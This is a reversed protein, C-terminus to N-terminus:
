AGAFSAVRHLEFGAAAETAALIDRLAEVTALAAIDGSLPRDAVLPPVVRRVAARAAATARAPELPAHFDLAQAAACLEAAVVGRVNRLLRPLRAAAISGM